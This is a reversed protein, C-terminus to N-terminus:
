GSVPRLASASTTHRLWSAQSAPNSSNFGSAVKQFRLYIANFTLSWANQGCAFAKLNIPAIRGGVPRGPWKEKLLSKQITELNQFGYKIVTEKM